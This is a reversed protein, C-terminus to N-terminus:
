LPIELSFNILVNVPRRKYNATLRGTKLSEELRRSNYSVMQQHTYGPEAYKMKEHVDNRIAPIGRQKVRRIHLGSARARALLDRDQHGIALMKEDYGGLADFHRKAMGIRGYTGDQYSGCFGQIVTDNDANWINRYTAITRGIFNDCDLNVVFEGIAAFHALNKAKSCHFYLETQEHVYRLTGAKIDSKFREIWENLGDQSNYNVLVIESRGDARVTKINEVLTKNLQWLRNKCTSCFSIRFKDKRM